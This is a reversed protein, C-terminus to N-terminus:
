KFRAHSVPQELSEAQARAPSARHRAMWDAAGDILQLVLGIFIILGFLGWANTLPRWWQPTAREPPRSSQATRQYDSLYRPAM